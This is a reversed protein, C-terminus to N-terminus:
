FVDYKHKESYVIDVIVRRCEHICVELEIGQSNVRLIAVVEDKLRM